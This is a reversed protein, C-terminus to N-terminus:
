FGEVSSCKPGATGPTSKGVTGFNLPVWISVGAAFYGGDQGLDKFSEKLGYEAFLAFPGKTVRVGATGTVFNNWNEGETDVNVKGAVYPVIAFGDKELVKLNLELRDTLVGNEDLTNYEGEAYNIVAPVMPFTKSDSLAKGEAKYWSGGWLRLMAGDEAGETFAERYGVDAGIIFPGHKYAAGIFGEVSDRWKQNEYNKRGIITVNPFLLVGEKKPDKGLVNYGIGLSALGTLNDEFIEGNLYSGEAYLTGIVKPPKLFEPTKDKTLDEEKIVHTLGTENTSAVKKPEGAVQSGEVVKLPKIDIQTDDKKAPSACGGLTLAVAGLTAVTTAEKWYEQVLGKAKNYIQRVKGISDENTSQAENAINELEAM